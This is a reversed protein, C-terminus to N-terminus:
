LGLMKRLNRASQRSVPVEDGTKTVAVYGGSDTPRLLSVEHLNLLARRHVRSFHPGVLRDHLDQLTVDSLLREGEVTCLTVLSGDFVAHSIRGPEVLVVGNRTVIPIRDIPAPPGSASAGRHTRAREIAKALRAAEIPKLVYDVAGLEFAQVAHQPHATAFIVYPADSGMLGHAEIGTLGPMQIDLVVVDVSESAVQQLLPQASAHAGVVRVGPIAELLRVVRKRAISEDDAVAVTLSPNPSPNASPNSGRNSGQSSSTQRENM